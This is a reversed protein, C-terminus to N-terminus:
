APSSPLVGPGPQRSHVAYRRGPGPPRGNASRKLSPNPLAAGHIRQRHAQWPRTIGRPAGWAGGAGRQLGHRPAYELRRRVQGAGTAATGAAAARCVSQNGPGGVCHPLEVQCPPGKDRAGAAGRSTVRSGHERLRGDASARPAPRQQLSALVRPEAADHSNPERRCASFRSSCVV